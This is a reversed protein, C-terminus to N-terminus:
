GPRGRRRRPRGPHPDVGRVVRWGAGKGQRGHYTLSRHHDVTDVAPDCGPGPWSAGPGPPPGARVRPPGAPRTATPPGPRASPPRGSSRPPRSAGPARNPCARVSGIPGCPGPLPAGGPTDTTTTPSLWRVVGSGPARLRHRHRRGARGLRQVVQGAPVVQALHDDDRGAQPGLDVGHGARKWPAMLSMRLKREAHLPMGGSSTRGILQVGVVVLRRGGVQELHRGPQVRRDEPLALDQALDAVGPVGGPGLRRGPRHQRRQEALGELDALPHAGLRGDGAAGRRQRLRRHRQGAASSPDSAPLVVRTSPAPSIPSAMAWARAPARSAPDSSTTLRVHLRAVWSAARQPPRAMSHDARGLARTWASTRSAEVPEGVDQEVAASRSGTSAERCPRGSSITSMATGRSTSGATPARGPTVRSSM